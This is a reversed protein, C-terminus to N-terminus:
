IIESNRILFIEGRCDIIHVKFYLWFLTLEFLIELKFKNKRFYIMSEKKLHCYEVCCHSFTKGIEESIVFTNLKGSGLQQWM